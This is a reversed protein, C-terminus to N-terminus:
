GGIWTAWDRSRCERTALNVQDFNLTDTGTQTESISGDFHKRPLGGANHGVAGCNLAKKEADVKLEKKRKKSLVSTAAHIILLFCIHLQYKIFSKPKEYEHHVIFICCRPSPGVQNILHMGNM